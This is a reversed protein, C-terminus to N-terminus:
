RQFAFPMENLKLQAEYLALTDSPSQPTALPPNAPTAPACFDNSQMLMLYVGQLDFIQYEYMITLQRSEKQLAVNHLPLDGYDM